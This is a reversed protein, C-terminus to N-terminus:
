AVKHKSLQNKKLYNEISSAADRGDKIAWVVLSAGRVIDGAAFVGKINTEMTDFDTKITGWQTVQLEQADFLLPLNEPDFGLAKIVMDAKIEFERQGVNKKLGKLLQNKFNFSSNTNFNSKKKAIELADLRKDIKTDIAQIVNDLTNKTNDSLM